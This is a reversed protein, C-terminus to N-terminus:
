FRSASWQGLDPLDGRTTSTLAEKIEAAVKWPIQVIINVHLKQYGLVQRITHSFRGNAEGLEVDKCLFCSEFCQLM